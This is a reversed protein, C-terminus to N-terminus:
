ARSQTPGSHHTLWTASAWFVTERYGKVRVFTSAEKRQELWALVQRLRSRGFRTKTAWQDLADWDRPEELFHLVVDSLHRWYDYEGQPPLAENERHPEFSPPCRTM